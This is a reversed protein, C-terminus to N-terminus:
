YHCSTFPPPYPNISVHKRGNRTRVLIQRSRELVLMAPNWWNAPCVGHPCEMQLLSESDEPPFYLRSKLWQLLRPARVTTLDADEQLGVLDSFAQLSLNVLALAAQVARVGIIDAGSEFLEICAAVRLVQDFSKSAVDHFGHLPCGPIQSSELLKQFDHLLLRADEAFSMIVPEPGAFEDTSVRDLCQQIRDAFRELARDASETSRTFDRLGFNPIAWFILFRALLGSNRVSSNSILRRDFEAKQLSVSVNLRPNFIVVPKMDRRDDTLTESSWLGAFHGPVKLFGARDLAHGEDCVLAIAGNQRAMEDFLAGSTIGSVLTRKLVPKTPKRQEHARIEQDIEDPEGPANERIAEALAVPKSEARRRRAKLRRLEASWKQDEQDFKQEVASFSQLARDDRQRIPKMCRNLAASKGLGSAGITLIFLSIPQVRTGNFTVRRNLQNGAIAVTTLVAQLAIADPCQEAVAIAWVAERMQDTLQDVVTPQYQSSM